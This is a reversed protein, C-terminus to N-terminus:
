EIEELAHKVGLIFEDDGIDSCIYVNVPRGKASVITRRTYCERGQANTLPCITSVSVSDLSDDVGKVQKDWVGGIFLYQKMM